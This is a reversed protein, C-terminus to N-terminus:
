VDAGFFRTVRKIHHTLAQPDTVEIREANVTGRPARRVANQLTHRRDAASQPFSIRALPDKPTRNFYWNFLPKGLEGRKNKEHPTTAADVSEWPGVVRASRGLDPYAPTGAAHGNSHMGGGQQEKEHTTTPEDHKTVMGNGGQRSSLPRAHRSVRGPAPITGM